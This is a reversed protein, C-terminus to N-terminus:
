LWGCTNTKISAFKDIEIIMGQLSGSLQLYVLLQVYKTLNRKL